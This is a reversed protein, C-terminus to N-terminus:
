QKQPGEVLDVIRNLQLQLGLDIISGNKNM